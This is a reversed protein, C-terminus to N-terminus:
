AYTKPLLEHDFALLKALHDLVHFSHSQLMSLSTKSFAITVSRATHIQLIM